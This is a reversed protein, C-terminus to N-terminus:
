QQFTKSYLYVNIQFETLSLVYMFLRAKGSELVLDYRNVIYIVCMTLDCLIALVIAQLLNTIHQIHM